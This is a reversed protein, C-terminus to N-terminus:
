SRKVAIIKKIFFFEFNEDILERIKKKESTIQYKIGEKQRYSRNWKKKIELLFEDIIAM